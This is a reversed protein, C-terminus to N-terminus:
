AFQARAGAGDMEGIARGTRHLRGKASLNILPSGSGHLMRYLVKRWGDEDFRSRFIQQFSHCHRLHEAVLQKEEPTGPLSM